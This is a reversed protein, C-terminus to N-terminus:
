AGLIPWREVLGTLLVRFPGGVVDVTRPKSQRALRVSAVVDSGLREWVCVPCNNLKSYSAFGGADIGSLGNSDLGALHRGLRLRGRYRIAGTTRPRSKRGRNRSVDGRGRGLHGGMFLHMRHNFRKWNLHLPLEEVGM